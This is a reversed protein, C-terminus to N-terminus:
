KENSPACIEEEDFEDPLRENDAEVDEDLLEDLKRKDEPSLESKRKIM